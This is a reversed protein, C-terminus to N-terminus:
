IRAKRRIAVAPPEIDWTPLGSAFLVKPEVYVMMPTSIEDQAPQISEQFVTTPTGCKQCFSDGAPIYSGCSNCKAEM